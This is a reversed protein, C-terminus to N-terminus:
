VLALVIWCILIIHIVAILRHTATVVQDRLDIKETKCQYYAHNEDTQEDGDSQLDELLRRLSLVLEHAAVEVIM